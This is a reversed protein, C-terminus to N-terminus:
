SQFGGREHRKKLFTCAIAALCLPCHASPEPVAATMVSAHASTLGFNSRWVHYDADNIQGNGSGDADLLSESGFTNRWVVYDAANVRGDYNYDGPLPLSPNSLTLDALRLSELEALNLERGYVRLNDLMGAFARSQFWEASESASNGIYFSRDTTAIQGGVLPGVTSGGAGNVPSTPTGKFFSVAGTAADLTIAFFVWENTNAFAGITSSVTVHNLSSQQEGFRFELTGATAATQNRVVWGGDNSSTGLNGILAGFSGDTGIPKGTPAKFWGQVTLERLLNVQAVSEGGSFGGNFHANSTGAAYNPSLAVSPDYYARDGFLGSVGTANASHNDAATWAGGAHQRHVITKYLSGTSISRLGSENFRYELIPRGPFVPAPPGHQFVNYVDAWNDWGKSVSGYSAFSGFVARRDIGQYVNDYIYVRDGNIGTNNLLLEKKQQTTGSTLTAGQAATMLNNYGEPDYGQHYFAIPDRRSGTAAQYTFSNGHIQFNTGFAEDGPDIDNFLPVAVFPRNYTTGTSVFTNGVVEGYDTNNGRFRIYDGPCDEFYNDHVKINYSGYANYMMHAGSNAGVRRFYNDKVVIDHVNTYTTGLAGYNLQLLDTWTCQEILINQTPASSSGQMHFAYNSIPGTFNLNRVTTNRVGNFQLMVGTASNLVAGNVSDGQLTLRNTVNGLSNLTLGGATYQGDLFRVTVSDGTLTSQVGSWFTTTLYSAANAASTGSGNGVAAPAVFFTTAGNVLTQLALLFLIAACRTIRM